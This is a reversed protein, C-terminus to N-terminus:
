QQLLNLGKQFNISLSKSIEKQQKPLQTQSVPSCRHNTRGIVDPFAQFTGLPHTQLAISLMKCKSNRTSDEHEEKKEEIWRLCALKLFSM